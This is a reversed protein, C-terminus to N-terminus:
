DHGHVTSGRREKKSKAYGLIVLRTMEGAALAFLEENRKNVPKKIQKMFAWAAHVCEHAITGCTFWPVTFAMEGIYDGRKRKGSAYDWNYGGVFFARCEKELGLARRYAELDKWSRFVSVDVTWRYHPHCLVNYSYVAKGAAKEAIRSM